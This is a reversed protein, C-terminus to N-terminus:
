VCLRGLLSAILEELLLVLHVCVCECVYVCLCVCMFVRKCVYLSLGICVRSKWYIFNFAIVGKCLVVGQAINGEEARNWSFYKAEAAERRNGAVAAQVDSYLKTSSDQNRRAIM